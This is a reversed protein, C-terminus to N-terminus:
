TGVPPGDTGDAEIWLFEGKGLSDETWVATDYQPSLPGVPYHVGCAVCFTGGYFKPNVAYTESLAHGMTTVSGCRLHRYANRYPRTYGKAREEEPLVLYAEQQGGPLMRQLGPDNRDTTDRNAM